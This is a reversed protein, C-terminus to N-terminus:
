LTMVLSGFDIYREMLSVIWKEASPYGQDLFIAGLLSEFVDEALHVNTRMGQDEAQRTMLVHRTLQLRESLLSLMTGNVIKTRLRTLFGENEGPFRRFLYAAVATNLVADGLYELREFSIPQLPIFCGVGVCSSGNRRVYSRHVFAKQYLSLNLPRADPLGNRQLLSQVDDITM